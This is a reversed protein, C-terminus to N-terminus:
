AFDCAVGAVSAESELRVQLQELLRLLIAPTAWEGGIAALDLCSEAGASSIQLRFPARAESHRVPSALQSPQM